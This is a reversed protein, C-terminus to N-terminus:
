LDFYVRIRGRRMGWEWWSEGPQNISVFLNHQRCCEKLIDVTDLQWCYVEARVHEAFLSYSHHFITYLSETGGSLGVGKFYRMSQHSSMRSKGRERYWWSPCLLLLSLIECKLTELLFHIRWFSAVEFFITHLEAPLSQSQVLRCDLNSPVAGAQQESM